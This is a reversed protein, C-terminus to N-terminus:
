ISDPLADELDEPLVPGSREGVSSATLSCDNGLFTLLAHDDRTGRPLALRCLCQMVSYHGSVLSTRVPQIPAAVGPRTQQATSTNPAM